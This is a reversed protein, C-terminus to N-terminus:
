STWYLNDRNRTPQKAAVEAATKVAEESLAIVGASLANLVVLFTSRM